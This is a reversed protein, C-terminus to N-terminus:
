LVWALVEWVIAASAAAAVVTALLFWRANRRGTIRSPEGRGLEGLPDKMFVRPASGVAALGVSRTPRSNVAVLGFWSHTTSKM